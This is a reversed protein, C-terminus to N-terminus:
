SGASRVWHGDRYVYWIQVREGALERRRVVANPWRLRLSEQLETPEVIGSEVLREASSRFDEDDPPNLVLTPRQESEPVM